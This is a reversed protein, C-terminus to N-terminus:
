MSKVLMLALIVAVFTAAVYIPWVGFQKEFVKASNAQAKRAKADNERGVRMKIESPSLYMKRGTPDLTEEYGKEQYFRMRMKAKMQDIEVSASRSQKRKQRRRAAKQKARDERYKHERELEARFEEELQQLEKDSLPM